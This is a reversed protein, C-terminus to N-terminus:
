HGLKRIDAIQGTLAAAVAMAPSALHTRAGPGQRGVFNRNTTSVSRERPAIIDGNAGVCMSCGPERWEFGADLFKRHLGEREAARKVAVSGPVIWARVSSAVKQGSLAKAAERLDSLRGNTCSGIFVWDVPTGEIAEGPRMGMYKLAAEMNKRREPDAENSPDPIRGTVDIVDQPSTGWTIQPAINPVHITHEADFVVDEDSPLKRWHAVAKDFLAGKPAYPRGALYEYTAEDPAIIGTKSGLEISLNCVTLREEITLEDILSGAFELAHGRGVATGLQGITSLIVDKASVGPARSGELRIRMTKPKKQRLTQTALVHAVESSGIAIALAGLAGHTCTHSDPCVVTAGPLTLGMEPAAVHVIGQGDDGIDFLKIGAASAGRRMERLLRGGTPNTDTTRGPLSSIAHDPMAFTLDPDHVRYGLKALRMFNPGGELDHLFHRDIALLSLESSLEAVAHRTWIKEFLTRGPM